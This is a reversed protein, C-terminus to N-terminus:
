KVRSERLLTKFESNWRRSFIGEGVLNIAADCEAVSDMWPGAQMPDGEVIKCAASFREQAASARRTLLNVCDQRELLRPILRTGILGTGGAVFIRMQRRRELGIPKSADRELEGRSM